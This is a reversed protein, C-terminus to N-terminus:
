VNASSDRKREENMQDIVEAACILVHGVLLEFILVGLSDKRAICIGGLVLAFYGLTRFIGGGLWFILGPRVLRWLWRRSVGPLPQKQSSM